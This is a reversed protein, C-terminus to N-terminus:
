APPVLRVEHGADRIALGWHHASGCAEM